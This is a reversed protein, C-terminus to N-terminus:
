SVASEPVPNIWREIAQKLDAIAYPKSVIANCGAALAQEKDTYYAHATVAIIPIDPSISRIRETAEIGNMEPMKLDMLILDPRERVFSHLAERGNTVWRLTYEKKLLAALLRYNAEVDEAVLIVKRKRDPHKQVSAAVPQQLEAVELEADARYPLCFSFTSGVGLQSQVDIYGGLREAISQCISLGLGTGQVFDNLKEFRNFILPIKNEPMGCGTDSVFLDLWGDRQVAGLTICGHQTKKIANSLFNFLVQTLRNRDTLIWVSRSPAVIKLEVGATMKLSHVKGVEDLLGTVEVPQFHNESKGSEIRSLDLIDNVLQLLLNSNSRIIEQYEEQEEGCDGAAILESFGVIANLPTRIEHSMTALFVSKMRDSEEARAKAEILEKSWRVRDGIDHILALVKNKEYPAIRAQFYHRGSEVDLPYEIERIKGDALCERINRVFLDSVEASYITRGDAGILEEVPHLLVTGSAMLVDTIFFRDDMIFIFEPLAEIVKRNREELARIRAEGECRATINGTYAVLKQPRGEEDSQYSFFNDELWIVQGKNGVCRVRICANKTDSALMRGFAERYNSVDDPHAFRYFDDIDSFEVGAETLGLIRFYDEDFSCVGTRIDYEWLAVKHAALVSVIKQHRDDIGQRNEQSPVTDSKGKMSQLNSRLKFYFYLYESQLASKWCGNKDSKKLSTDFFGNNGMKLDAKGLYCEENKDAEAFCFDENRNYKLVM